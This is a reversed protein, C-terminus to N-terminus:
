TCFFSVGASEIELMKEYEDTIQEIPRDFFFNAMRMRIGHPTQEQDPFLKQLKEFARYSTMCWTKSKRLSIVDTHKGCVAPPYEWRLDLDISRLYFHEVMFSKCHVLSRHPLETTHLPGNIRFLPSKTAQMWSHGHM